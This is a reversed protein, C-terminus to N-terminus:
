SYKKLADLVLSKEVPVAGYAPYDHPPICHYCAVYPKDDGKIRIPLFQNRNCSFCKAWLNWSIEQSLQSITRPEPETWLIRQPRLGIFCLRREEIAPIIRELHRLMSESTVGRMAKDTQTKYLGAAHSLAAYRIPM